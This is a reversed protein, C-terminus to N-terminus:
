WDLGIHDRIHRNTERRRSHWRVARSLPSRLQRTFWAVARRCDCRQDVCFFELFAYKGIPLTSGPEGTDGERMIHVVRTEHEALDPFLVSFSIMGM